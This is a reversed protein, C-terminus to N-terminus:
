VVLDPVALFREVRLGAQGTAPPILLLKPCPLFSFSAVAIQKKILLHVSDPCSSLFDAGELM